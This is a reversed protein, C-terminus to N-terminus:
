ERTSRFLDELQKKQEAGQLAGTIAQSTTPANGYSSPPKDSPLANLVPNPLIPQPAQQAQGSPMNQGAISGAAQGASGSQIAEIARRIAEQQEDQSMPM